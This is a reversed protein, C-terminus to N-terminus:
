SFQTRLTALDKKILEVPDGSPGCLPPMDYYNETVIWGEYGRKKLVGASEYFSADGEGLLAGSLDKNKGDKVHLEVVLDYLSDLLDPTYDDNALYYNQFDFYLGLNQRDVREFLERTKAASLTNEPAILIGSDAARDCAWRIIDVLIDFKRDTTIASKEFSPILIRPIGMAECAGIASAIGTKCIEHEESGPEDLMGYYDSVRVAMSPITIGYSDAAELYAAQVAKRGKPFGREYPGIDIQVGDIGLEAALKFAWPGDIPLSWECIGIKNASM